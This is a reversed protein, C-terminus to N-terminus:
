RAIESARVGEVARRIRIDAEPGPRGPSEAAAILAKLEAVDIEVTHAEGEIIQEEAVVPADPASPMAAGATLPRRDDDPTAAPPKITARFALETGTEGWEVTFRGELRHGIWAVVVMLAGVVVVPLTWVSNTVFLGGILLLLVGALSLRVRPRAMWHGTLRAAGAVREPWDASPSSGASPGGPSPPPGASPDGPPAPSATPPAGPPPFSELVPELARAQSPDNAPM